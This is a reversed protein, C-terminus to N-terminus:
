GPSGRPTRPRSPSSGTRRCRTLPRRSEGRRRHAPLSRSTVEALSHGLSPHEGLQDLRGPSWAGHDVRNDSHPRQTRVRRTAASGGGVIYGSLIRGHGLDLDVGLRTVLEALTGGASDPALRLNGRHQVSVAGIGHVDRQRAVVQHEGQLRRVGQERDLEVAVALQRKGLLHLPVRDLAEDLVGIQQDHGTSLLDGDLHLHVEDASGGRVGQHHGLM